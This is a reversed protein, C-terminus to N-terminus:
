IGYIMVVSVGITPVLALLCFLDDLHKHWVIDPAKRASRARLTIRLIVALVTLILLSISAYLCSDVNIYTYSM